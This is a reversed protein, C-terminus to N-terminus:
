ISPHLFTLCLMQRFRSKVTINKPIVSEDFAKGSVSIVTSWKVAL